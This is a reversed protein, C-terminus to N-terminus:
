TQPGARAAQIAEWNGAVAVAPSRTSRKSLSGPQSPRLWWESRKGARLQARQVLPQQM